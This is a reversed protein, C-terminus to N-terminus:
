RNKLSPKQSVDIKMRDRMAKFAALTEDVDADSHSATPIMRFMLVGLPVVPYAVGSVFVGYDERLMRVMGMGTQMDAAPVYVPTIPSKTDGIDFGLDVLGKQLRHAVQWMRQRLDPRAQLADVSASLAAVYVLPLSKAFVNTRANYLIYRM